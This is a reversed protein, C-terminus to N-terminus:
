LATGLCHLGIRIANRRNIILLINRDRKVRYLVGDSRVRECWIINEMKELVV